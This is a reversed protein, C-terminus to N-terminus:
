GRTRMGQSDPDMGREHERQRDWDHQLHAALTAKIEAVETRLAALEAELLAIRRDAVM